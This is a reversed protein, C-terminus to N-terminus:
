RTANFDEIGEAVGELAAILLGEWFKADRVLNAIAAFWDAATSEALQQKQEPTLKDVEANWTNLLETELNFRTM